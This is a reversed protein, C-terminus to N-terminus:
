YFNMLIQSRHIRKALHTYRGIFYAVLVQRGDPHRGLVCSERNDSEDYFTYAGRFTQIFVFLLLLSLENKKADM